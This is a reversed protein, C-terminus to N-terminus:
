LNNLKTYEEAYILNTKNPRHGTLYSSLTQYNIGSKISAEKICSYEEKTIKDIVKKSSSNKAGHRDLKLAAEKLKIRHEESFIRGTGSESIKRKTEETHNRGWWACLEGKKGYLPHNEGKNIRSMNDRYEKTYIVGVAGDGGDTMNVLTGLGLDKRGYHSILAVELECADEWTLDSKLIQVEYGYKSVLNKWHNSRRVKDYPRKQNVGIGIYFVEGCPKLHRYLVAM